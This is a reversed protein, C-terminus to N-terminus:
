PYRAVVTLVREDSWISSSVGSLAYVALVNEYCYEDATFCADNVEANNGFNYPDLKQVLEQCQVAM